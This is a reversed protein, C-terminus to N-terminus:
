NGGPLTSLCLEATAASPPDVREALSSVIGLGLRNVLGAFVLRGNLEVSIPQDLNLLRDSLRVCLRAPVEGHIRIAQGQVTAVIRSRDGLAVDEPVRLWYFRRHVVDDQQWVIKDPWPNRTFEAMWALGEADKGEMWHGLGDYVRAFHRYGGADAAALRDLEAAREAVVQNRNYAADNGGVFLAFPLNRLGLLSAENPHGAMMAAAAFRDAMRPALQWVGDGGASYGLLYVRDPNVGRLAVYSEILQQFLPDIHAEHWLNWTDTPARPAVYIGETLEYLRSQNDWQRDNVRPRTNGGGHMSIWLSHGEPPPEGFVKELWRLTKGDQTISRSAFAERRAEAIERLRAQGLLTSAQAAEDGSLPVRLVPADSSREAAPLESWTRIGELAACAPALDSWIADVTADSAEFPGVAIERIQDNLRFRLWGQAGPQLTFRPLDNLDTSGAKTRLPGRLGFAHDLFWVDAILRTGNRRDWLRVGLRAETSSSAPKAYRDTVNVAAVTENRRSWVMPFTLGARKWSTAYIAHRRNEAVAQAADGTFWGRDLGNADYEDAGTFYWRGDWIEIWTHNGRQNAWMPTGVARAPIGVSRCANVLIISLGTCTAMGLEKSEKFSQNPRKRGTNYHVNVANFLQRNLAQVAESATRAEAVLGRCLELLEARWPDRPEDFVAYPLVDNLFIDEPVQRGWPFESRARIALNLNEMLFETALTAKDPEPMNEVLFRAAREGFDGHAVKAGDIFDDLPGALAMVTLLWSGLIVRM